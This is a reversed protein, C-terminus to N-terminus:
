GERRFCSIKFSLLIESDRTNSTMYVTYNLGLKMLESTHIARYKHREQLNRPVFSVHNINQEKDIETQSLCFQLYNFGTDAILFKLYTYTREVLLCKKMRIVM